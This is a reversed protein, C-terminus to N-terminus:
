FFTSKLQIMHGLFRLVTHITLNTYPLSPNAIVDYLMESTNPVTSGQHNFTYM